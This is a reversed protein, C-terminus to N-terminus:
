VAGYSWKGGPGFASMTTEFGSRFAVFLARAVPYALVLLSGPWVTVAIACIALLVLGIVTAGPSTLTLIVSARYFARMSPQTTHAALPFGHVILPLAAAAGVLALAWLSWMLPSETQEWLLLVAGVPAATTVLLATGVRLNERLYGLYSRLVPRERLLVDDRVVAVLAVTAAGATVVPLCAVFWLVTLGVARWISTLRELIVSWRHSGEYM